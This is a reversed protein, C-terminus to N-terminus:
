EAQVEINEVPKTREIRNCVWLLLITVLLIFIEIGWMYSAVWVSENKLLMWTQMVGIILLLVQQVAGIWLACQHLVGGYIKEGAAPKHRCISIRLGIWAALTVAMVPVVYLWMRWDKAYFALILTGSLYLLLLADWCYVGSMLLRGSIGDSPTNDLKEWKEPSWPAPARYHLEGGLRLYERYLLFYFAIGLGSFFLRWVWIFRYAFYGGDGDGTLKRVGDIAVGLLLGLILMVLSRVMAGASCFQGFRSKPLIRILMPMNAIGSVATIVTSAILSGLMVAFVITVNGPSCFIWKGFVLAFVVQFLHSYILTRVPHWRDILFSGITAMGMGIGLGVMGNIGNLRGIDSLDMGMAMYFFVLFTGIGGLGASWFTGAITSFWYFRHSFSEKMFTWVGFIGKSQKKEQETLPPLVPEKLFLCMAGVGLFYVVAGALMVETFYKDGHPFFFFNFVTAAATGAVQVMGVARALFRAPIVDNYLYYIVSAVFMYFFQYFVMVIGIILITMSAPSFDALPKLLAALANGLPSSFAFGLLGLCFIPLTGIIFINRRGFRKGRYRDSKFSVVPCVTMNFIGAITSMILAITTDSAQLFKLRLTVLSIMGAAFRFSFFGLMLLGIALVVGGITYKLSGCEYVKKESSM